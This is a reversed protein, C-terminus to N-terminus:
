LDESSTNLEELDELTESLGPSEPEKLVQRPNLFFYPGASMNKMEWYLLSVRCSRGTLSLKQRPPSELSPPAPTPAVRGWNYKCGPDYYYLSCQCGQIEPKPESDRSECVCESLEERCKKSWEKHDEVMVEEEIDEVEPNVAVAKSLEKSQDPEEKFHRELEQCAEHTLESHENGGAALGEDDLGEESPGSTCLKPSEAM